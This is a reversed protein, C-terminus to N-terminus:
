RVITFHMKVGNKAMATMEENEAQLIKRIAEIGKPTIRAFTRAKSKYLTFYGKNIAMETVTYPLKGQLIGHRCLTARLDMRNIDLKAYAMKYSTGDIPISIKELNDQM